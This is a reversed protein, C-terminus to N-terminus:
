IPKQTKPNTANCQMHKRTKDIMTHTGSHILYHRGDVFGTNTNTGQHPGKVRRSSTSFYVNKIKKILLWYIKLHYKQKKSEMLKNIHLILWNQLRIPYVVLNLTQLM